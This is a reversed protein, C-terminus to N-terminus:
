RRFGTKAAGCGGTRRGELQISFPERNATGQSEIQVLRPTEVRVTTRGNGANACSYQVTAMRQDNYIVFRSCTAGSHRLKLLVNPDTVCISRNENSDGRSRLEWYGPEISSLASLSQEPAAHAGFTTALGAMVAFAFWYKM